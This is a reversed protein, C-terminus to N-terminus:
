RSPDVLVKAHRSTGSDLEAFMGVLEGLGITGTHLSKLDIRGEAVLTMAGIFDEHSYALSGIM